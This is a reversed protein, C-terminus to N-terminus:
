FQGLWYIPVATHNITRVLKKDATVFPTNLSQALALYCADYASINWTAALQLIGVILDSTPTSDLNLEVLQELFTQAAAVALGFRRTHKWLINTCEIYFLDPVYFRTPPDTTLRAFLAHAEDSLPEHLFLKIGVSADVVLALPESM